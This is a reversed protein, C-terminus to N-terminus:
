VVIIDFLSVCYLIKVDRFKALASLLIYAIFYILTTDRFIFKFNMAFYTLGGIPHSAGERQRKARVITKTQEATIDMVDNDLLACLMRSEFDDKRKERSLEKSFQQIYQRWCDLVVLRTNVVVQLIVMLVGLGLHIWGLVSMAIQFSPPEHDYSDNKRVDRELTVFMYMNIVFSFLLTIDRVHMLYVPKIGRRKTMDFTHDMHNFMKPVFALFDAIKENASDRRVENMLGSKADEDLYNCAPHKMFYVKQISGRFNIEINGSNQKFFEFALKEVKTLEEIKQSYLDTGDDVIRAFIYINFGLKLDEDFTKQSVRMILDQDTPKCGVKETFDLFIIKLRTILYTFEINKGIYTIVDSNYNFELVSLLLKITKNFMLNIIDRDEQLRLNFGKSLLDQENSNLDNLFDKCFDLVKAKIVAEQNGKCPGQLTEIIFDIIATGVTYCEKNFFKVFSGLMIVAQTVFDINGSSRSELDEQHQERLFNQLDANHGECLLQLFRMIKILTNLIESFGSFQYKSFFLEGFFIMRMQDANHNIMLRAINDFNTLLVKELKKLIAISSDSQLVKLFEMQGSHNGDLLIQSAVEICLELVQPNNTTLILSCLLNVTDIKILFEQTNVLASKAKVATGETQISKDAYERFIKLGIKVTDDLVSNQPNLYDVLSEFFDSFNDHLQQEESNNHKILNKLEVASMEEYRRSLIFSSCDVKFRVCEDTTSQFMATAIDNLHNGLSNKRFITELQMRRLDKEDSIIRNKNANAASTILALTKQAQLSQPNEAPRANDENEAYAGLNYKKCHEIIFESFENIHEKLEPHSNFVEKKASLTASATSLISQLQETDNKYLGVKLLQDLFRLLTDVAVKFLDRQIADVSILEKHTLHYEDSSEGSFYDLCRRMIKLLEQSILYTSVESTTDMEQETDIFVHFSFKCLEYEVLLPKNAFSFIEGLERLTILSQAIKESFSNKDFCCLTMLELFSIFLCLQDNLLKVSKGMYEVDTYLKKDGNMDLNLSNVLNNQRFHSFVMSMSNSILNAMIMSQNARVTAEELMVFQGITYLCYALKYPRKNERSIGKLIATLIQNLQFQDEIIDKNNRIVQNLVEIANTSVSENKIQNLITHGAEEFVIKKNASNNQVLQALVQYILYVLSDPKTFNQTKIDNEVCHDLLSCMYTIGQSNRFLDQFSPNVQELLRDMNTLLFSNELIVSPLNKRNSPSYLIEGSETDMSHLLREVQMLNVKLREIESNEQGSFWSDKKETMMFLINTIEQCLRLEKLQKQSEIIQITALRQGLCATESFLTHLLELSISKLEQNDYLTQKILLNVLFDNKVILSANQSTLVFEFLSEISNNQPLALSKSTKDPGLSVGWNINKKKDIRGNKAERTQKYLYILKECRLDTKIEAFIKLLECIKIKLNICMNYFSPNAGKESEGYQQSQLIDARNDSKISSSPIQEGTIILMEVLSDFIVSFDGTDQFFGLLIMKRSLIIIALLFESLDETLKGAIRSKVDRLFSLLFEKLKTYEISNSKSKEEVHAEETKDPSWLKISSPYQDRMFPFVDIWLNTILTCFAGRLSYSFRESCVVLRCVNMPMATQLTDIASYNRELCLDGLLNTLEIYYSSFRKIAEDVTDDSLDEFSIWDKDLIRGKSPRTFVQDREVKLEPIIKKRNTSDTLVACSILSQNRAMPRGDCICIARLIGIYKKDSNSEILNYVFKDITSKKIQAELIRENNDILETLTSNAGLSDDLNSLSYYILLNLWQSAYLENPRYEMIGCRITTYCLQILQAAYLNRHVEEIDYIERKFPYHILEMLTEILNFDKILKQKFRAPELNKDINRHDFDSTHDIDYIFCLLSTLLYEVEVLKQHNAMIKQKYKFFRALEKIETLCSRVFYIDRCVQPDVLNFHYGEELEPLNKM